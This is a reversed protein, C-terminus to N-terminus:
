QGFVKKVDGVKNQVKGQIKEDEGEAQLNPDKTVKGVTEKVAGKAEHLKGKLKDENSSTM